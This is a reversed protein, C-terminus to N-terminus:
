SYKPAPGSLRCCSREPSRHIRWPKARPSAAASRPRAPRAPGAPRRRRTTPLPRRLPPHLAPPPSPHGPPVAYRRPVHRRGRDRTSEERQRVQRRRSARPRGPRAARIGRGARRRRSRGRRTEARGEDDIEAGMAIGASMAGIDDQGAAGVRLLEAGVDVGLTANLHDAPRGERRALRALVPCDQPRKGVHDAM